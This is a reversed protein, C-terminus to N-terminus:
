KKKEAPHQTDQGESRAHLAGETCSTAASTASVPPAAVALASDVTATARASAVATAGAARRAGRRRARPTVTQLQCLGLQWPTESSNVRPVPVMTICLPRRRWPPVLMAPPSCWDGLRRARTGTLDRLGAARRAGDGAPSHHAAAVASPLFLPARCAYRARARGVSPGFVRVTLGTARRRPTPLRACGAPPWDKDRSLVARGKARTSTGNAKSSAMRVSTACRPEDPNQNPWRRSKGDTRAPPAHAAGLRSRSDDWLRSRSNQTRCPDDELPSHTPTGESAAHPVSIRPVCAFSSNAAATRVRRYVLLLASAVANSALVGGCVCTKM